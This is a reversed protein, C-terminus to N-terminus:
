NGYVIAYYRRTISHEALQKSISVHAEDTKCIVLLGTTDRDIRHVIGPREVGNIGSLNPCHYMLANVLTDEYHGPAPHVVMGKPKNVILIDEDEYVIDLPINVAKIDLPAPDPMTIDIRDGVKLQASKSVEKGNLTVAGSKLLKQAHSRTISDNLLSICTDIRVDCLDEEIFYTITEAM